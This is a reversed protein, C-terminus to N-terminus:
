RGRGVPRGARSLGGVAPHSPKEAVPPLALGEAGARAALFEDLNVELKDAIADVQGILREWDPAATKRHGPMGMKEALLEEVLQVQFATVNQGKAWRSVTVGSVPYGGDTLGRAVEASNAYYLLARMRESRPNM